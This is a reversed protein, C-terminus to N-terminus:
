PACASLFCPARTLDSVLNMLDILPRLVPLRFFEVLSGFIGAYQLVTRTAADYAVLLKLAEAEHALIGDAAQRCYDSAEISDRAATEGTFNCQTISQLGLDSPPLCGDVTATASDEASVTAGTIMAVDLKYGRLALREAAVEIDGRLFKPDLM